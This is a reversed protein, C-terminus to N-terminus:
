IETGPQDAQRWVQEEVLRGFKSLCGLFRALPRPTESISRKREDDVRTVPLENGTGQLPRPGPHLRSAAEAGQQYTHRTKGKGRGGSM